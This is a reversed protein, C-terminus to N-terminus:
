EIIHGALSLENIIETEEMEAFKRFTLNSTQENLWIKANKTGGHINSLYSLLKNSFKKM